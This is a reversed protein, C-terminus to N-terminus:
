FNQTKNDILNIYELLPTISIALLGMLLWLVFANDFRDLMFGAFLPSLVSSVAFCQSFMSIAFGRRPLPTQSIISATALPLFAALGFAMPIQAILILVSGKEM